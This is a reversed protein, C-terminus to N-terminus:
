ELNQVQERLKEVENKLEVSLHAVESDNIKSAITNIERFFEQLLFDLRRGSPEDGALYATFQAFHSDLRALEESVDSKDALIAAEQALRWPDPEVEQLLEQLRQRLRQQRRSVLEPAAATLRQVNTRIGALRERLERGTAEGERCRMELTDALAHHLAESLLPWEAEPSEPAAEEFRFVEPLDRLMALGPKDALSLEDRLRELGQLYQRALPLNVALAPGGNGGSLTLNVEIHGRSYADAVEKKVAEELPAYQRPLRVKIDRYRHNVSRIEVNWTREGATATGRGFATMSRPYSM